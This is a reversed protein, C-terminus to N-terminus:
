SRCAGSGRRTSRDSASLRCATKQSSSTPGRACAVGLEGRRRPGVQRDDAAAVEAEPRGHVGLPAVGATRDHEQLGPRDAPRGRTAVAAEALRGEGVTLLVPAGAPGLLVVDQGPEALLVEVRELGVHAVEAQGALPLAGAGQGDGDLLVLDRPEAVLRVDEVPRGTRASISLGSKRAPASSGSPFARTCGARSASSSARTATSSPTSTWSCEATVASRRVPEPATSTCVSRATTVESWTTRAM